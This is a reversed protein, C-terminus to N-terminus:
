RAATQIGNGPRAGALQVDPQNQLRDYAAMADIGSGFYLAVRVTVPAGRYGQPLAPYRLASAVRVARADVLRDGSSKALTAGAYDGDATFNVAVESVTLKPPQYVDRAEQMREIRTQVARQWDAITLPANLTAAKAPGVAALVCTASVALAGISSIMVRQKDIKDFGFM